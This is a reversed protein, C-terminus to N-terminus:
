ACPQYPVLKHILNPLLTEVYPDAVLKAAPAAAKKGKPTPAPPQFNFFVSDTVLSTYNSNIVCKREM